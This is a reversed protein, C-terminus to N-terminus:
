YARLELTAYWENGFNSGEFTIKHLVFSGSIAQSALNVYGGLALDPNLLSVAEILGTSLRKPSGVLGTSWNLDVATATRATSGDLARWFLSGDQISYGVKAARAVGALERAAPGDLAWGKSTERGLLHDVEIINGLGLGLAEACREVISRFSTGKPFSETVRSALVTMGGDEGEISTEWSKDDQQESIARRVDGRFILARHTEAYGAEIEVRIRGTKPARNQKQVNGRAQKVGKPRKPDFISLADLKNRDEESLNFITLKCKNPEGTLDKVVEFEFDLSGESLETVASDEGTIVLAQAFGAGISSETSVTIQYSRKFLEKRYAENM